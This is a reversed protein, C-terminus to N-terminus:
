SKLVGPPLEEAPIELPTDAPLHVIHDYIRQTPRILADLDIWAKFRPDADEVAHLKELGAGLKSRAGKANHRLVHHYGAAIQILGQLFTKLPPESRLWVAELTEHSEWYQHRNFQHAAQHLAAEIDGTSSHGPTM